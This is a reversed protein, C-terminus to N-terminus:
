QKQTSNFQVFVLLTNILVKEGVYRSVYTCVHATGRAACAGRGMHMTQIDMNLEPRSLAHRLIMSPSYCFFGGGVSRPEADRM